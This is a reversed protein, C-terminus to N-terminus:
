GTLLCSTAIVATTGASVSQFASESCTPTLYRSNSILFLQLWLSIVYMGFSHFIEAGCSAFRFTPNLSLSTLFTRFSCYLYLICCIIGTTRESSIPLRKISGM